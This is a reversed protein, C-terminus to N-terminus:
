LNEMATKKGHCERCLAVLNDIHNSGGHELRIKHDVEFWASLQQQCDGCCWNQRSAVFKKKTESVSRKTTKKGSHLMRTEGVRETADPMSVVPYNYNGGDISQYQSDFFNQKSTFDLIPSLFTSTDRDVPLYKIYDNSTTIIEKARLPNKKILTYLMLAGFVVGAMQYYKKWSMMLKIYKGETYINAVIFGTILVLILEFRM